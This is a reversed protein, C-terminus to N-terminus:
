IVHDLTESLNYDYDFDTLHDVNDINTDIDAEEQCIDDNKSEM